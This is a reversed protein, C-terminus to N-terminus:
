TEAALMAARAAVSGGVPARSMALPTSITTATSDYKFDRHIRAMGPDGDDGRAEEERKLRAAEAPQVVDAETAPYTPVDTSTRTRLRCM